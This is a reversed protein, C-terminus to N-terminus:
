LVWPDKTDLGTPITENATLHSTKLTDKTVPIKGDLTFTVGYVMPFARRNANNAHRRM